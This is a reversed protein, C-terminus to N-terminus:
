NACGDQGPDLIQIRVIDQFNPGFVSKSPKCTLKSAVATESGGLFAGLSVGSCAMVTPGLSDLEAAGAGAGFPKLLCM